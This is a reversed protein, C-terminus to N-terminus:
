SADNGSSSEGNENTWEDKALVVYSGRISEASLEETDLNVWQVRYPEGQRHVYVAMKAKGRIAEAVERARTWPVVPGKWQLKPDSFNVWGTAPSPTIRWEPLAIYYILNAPDRILTHGKVLGESIECPERLGDGEFWLVLNAVRTRFQTNTRSRIIWRLRNYFSEFRRLEQNAAWTKVIEELVAERPSFDLHKVIHGFPNQEPNSRVM